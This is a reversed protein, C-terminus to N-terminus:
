TSFQEKGIQVAIMRIIITIIVVILVVDQIWLLSTADIVLSLLYWLWVLRRERGALVRYGVLM